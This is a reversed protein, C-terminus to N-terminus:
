STEKDTDLCINHLQHPLLSSLLRVPKPKKHVTWEHRKLNGLRSTMYSCIQCHHMKKGLRLRNKYCEQLHDRYLKRNYTEFKCIRCKNFSRPSKDSLTTEDENPSLKKIEISEESMQSSSSPMHSFAVASQYEVTPPKHLTFEVNNSSPSALSPFKFTPRLVSSFLSPKVISTGSPFSLYQGTTVLMSQHAISVNLPMSYETEHLSTPYRSTNNNRSGLNEDCFIKRPSILQQKDGNNNNTEHFIEGDLNSNIFCHMEIEHGHVNDSEPTKEYVADINNNYNYGANNGNYASCDGEKTVKLRYKDNLTSQHVDKSYRRLQLAMHVAQQDHRKELHTHLDLLTGSRFSCLYCEFDEDESHRLQHSELECKSLTLFGCESCSFAQDQSDCQKEEVEISAKSVSIAEHTRIEESRFIDNTHSRIHRRCEDLQDSRYDCLNCRYVRSSMMSSDSHVKATDREPSHYLRVDDCEDLPNQKTLIKTAESTMDLPSTPNVEYASPQVLLTLPKPQNLLRTLINPHTKSIGCRFPKNHIDDIANKVGDSYECSINESDSKGLVKPLCEEESIEATTSPNVVEDDEPITSIPKHICGNLGEKLPMLDDNDAHSDSDDFFLSEQQSPDLVISSQFSSSSTTRSSYNSDQTSTPKDRQFCKQSVHRQIHNIFLSKLPSAFQCYICSWRQIDWSLVNFTVMGQVPIESYTAM